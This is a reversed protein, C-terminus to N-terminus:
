DTRSTPTLRARSADLSLKKSLSANVLWVQWPTFKESDVFWFQPKTYEAIQHTVNLNNVM